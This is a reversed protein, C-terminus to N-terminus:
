MKIESCEVEHNRLRDISVDIDNSNEYYFCRKYKKDHNYLIKYFGESVAIGNKGIRKPNKQYKVVNIVQVNGLKVAVFRAYREVKTWTYRNVRRAQPIINSLYYTDQLAEKDWDFAADCALHGRDYGSKIYDTTSARYQPEVSKEVRFSLRKEINNENVLNGYLTYSVAKTAKYKYDYCINLFEKKIIQDCNEQNIFDDKNIAPPPL